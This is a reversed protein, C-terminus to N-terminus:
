KEEKFSQFQVINEASQKQILEYLEKFFLEGQKYDKAIIEIEYTPTSVYRIVLEVNLKDAFDSIQKFLEKLRYLGDPETSYLSVFRRMKVRQAKLQELLKKRLSEAIDKDIELEDIIEVGENKISYYFDALSGFVEIITGGVERLSKEPDKGCSKAIIEILKELRVQTKIEDMKRKKEVNSVRKFSVDIHGKERHLGLVKCVMKNGVSLHEKINKVYKSSIESIHLMAERNEYDELMVFACHPLVRKVTCLVLENM